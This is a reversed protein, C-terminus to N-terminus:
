RKKVFTARASSPAAMGLRCTLKTGRCAGTWSKLRWGKAAKATLFVPLYSTFSRTCTGKACRMAGPSSSVTGKGAVSVHLPYTSPAFLAGVTKAQDLTVSCAGDGGCGGTWKIFRYGAASAPSLSIVDGRDWDTGCTASCAIGPLDSTVSGTGTISLDLHVQDQTHKFWPQVQLNVPATGAWYDDHNVDLQLSSLPIGSEVYPYLVDGSSDCVHWSDNPCLHNAGQLLTGPNVAHVLEHAAVTARDAGNCSDLFVIAVGMSPSGLQSTTAPGGVGCLNGTDVQDLFVLFKTTGAAPDGQLQTWVNQFVQHGDTSGVSVNSMQLVQLDVQPGCPAAYMDFRPLRSPDERQWWADIQDIYDSIQPAVTASHDAGDSPFGYFVRIPYGTSTAPRDTTSTSGCWSTTHRTSAPVAHVLPSSTMTEADAVFPPSSTSGRGAAGGFAACLAVCVISIPVWRAMPQGYHGIRRRDM